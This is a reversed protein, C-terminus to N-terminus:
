KLQIKIEANARLEELHSQLRRNTKVEFLYSEIEDRVRLYDVGKFRDIHTKYFEVIDSERVFIPSRIKIDIYDKILEDKTPAELRMKRAEHLLLVRNIMSNIVEEKTIDKIAVRMENYTKEFESLTIATDDVYAVVRDIIEASSYATLLLCCATALLVTVLLSYRTKKVGLEQSKVGSEQSPKKSHMDSALIYRM